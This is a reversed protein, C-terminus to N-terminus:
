NSKRKRNRRANSRANDNMFNKGGKPTDGTRRQIDFSWNIYDFGMIANHNHTQM